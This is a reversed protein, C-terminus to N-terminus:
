METWWKNVFVNRDVMAKFIGDTLYTRSTTTVEFSFDGEIEQEILFTDLAFKVPQQFDGAGKLIAELQEKVPLNLDLAKKVSLYGLGGGWTYGCVHGDLILHKTM